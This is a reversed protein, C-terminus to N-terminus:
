LFFCDPEVSRFPIQDFETDVGHLPFQRLSAFPCQSSRKRLKFFQASDQGRWADLHHVDYKGGIVNERDRRLVPGLFDYWNQSMRVTYYSGM